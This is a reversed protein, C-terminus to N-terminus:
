PSLQQSDDGFPDETARLRAVMEAPLHRRHLYADYSRGAGIPESAVGLAASCDHKAQARLVLARLLEARESRPASSALYVFVIGRPRQFHRIFHDGGDQAETYIEGLKRGLAVRRASPSTETM